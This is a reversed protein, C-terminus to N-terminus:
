SWFLDNAKTWMSCNVRVKGSTIVMVECFNCLDGLWSIHCRDRININVTLINHHPLNKPTVTKSSVVHMQLPIYLSPLHDSRCKWGPSTKVRKKEEMKKNGLIPLFYPHRSNSRKLHTLYCWPLITVQCPHRLGDKPACHINSLTQLLFTLSQNPYFFRSLIYKGIEYM